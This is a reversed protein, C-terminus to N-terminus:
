ALNRLVRTSAVATTVTLVDGPYLLGSWNTSASVTTGNLVITAAGPTVNAYVSVTQKYPTTNTYAVGSSVAASSITNYDPVTSVSQGVATQNDKVIRAPYNSAPNNNFIYSGLTGGSEVDNVNYQDCRDFYVGYEAQLSLGFSALANIGVRGGRMDVRSRFAYVDYGGAGLRNGGVIYPDHVISNFNNVSGTTSELFISHSGSLFVSPRVIWLNQTLSGDTKVHIGIGQMAQVYLDTMRIGAVSSGLNEIFVGKDYCYDFVCSELWINLLAQTLGCTAYFGRHYRNCLVGSKFHLTDTTQGTVRIFVNGSVPPNPYATAPNIPQLGADNILYTNDLTTVVCSDFHIANRAVNATLGTIDTVVGNSARDLYIVAPAYLVRIEEVRYYIVRSISIPTANVDVTIAPYNFFFGKIAFRRTSGDGVFSFINGSEAEIRANEGVISVDSKTITQTVGAKLNYTGNPFLITISGSASNAYALAANVAAVDNAVGDGVAGFDKVSVTQALKDGVNTGVAGTFPPTYSVQFANTSSVSSNLQSTTFKVEAGVHLGNVFTVTDSDTELYAYQAGPGYQNVGDVFVSLSNTGPQYSMTALNFVTQGATATQIEQQNTFAVFNSNIGSVGDYTAILVDNADRLIFKYVLGDTLWIEGGPVRGSADLIIPNSHPTGGNSSTYTPQPTTTGGAYTFIKGGTLVNGANDLFQAGVGGYPSLNVAM